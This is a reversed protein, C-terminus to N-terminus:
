RPRSRPRPRATRRQLAPSAAAAGTAGYGDTLDPSTPNGAGAGSPGEGGGGGSLGPLPRGSWGALACYDWVIATTRGM